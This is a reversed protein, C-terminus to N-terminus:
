HAIEAMKWMIDSILPSLLAKTFGVYPISIAKKLIEKAPYKLSGNM